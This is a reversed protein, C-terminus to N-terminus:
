NEMRIVIQGGRIKRLKKAIESQGDEIIEAPPNNKMRDFWVKAEKEAVSRNDTSFVVFFSGNNYRRDKVAVEYKFESDCVEAASVTINKEKDEFRAVKRENYNSLMNLFELM